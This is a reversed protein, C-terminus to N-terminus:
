AHKNELSHFVDEQLAKDLEAHIERELKALTNDLGLLGIVLGFDKYTLIMSHHVNRWERVQELSGSAILTDELWLEASEEVSSITYLFELNKVDLSYPWEPGDKWLPSRDWRCGRYRLIGSDRPKERWFPDYGLWLAYRYVTRAFEYMTARPGIKGKAEDKIQKYLEASRKLYEGGRQKWERFKNWFKSSPLGAQYLFKFLGQEEARCYLEVIDKGLDEEKLRIWCFSPQEEYQMCCSNGVCGFDDPFGCDSGTGVLAYEPLPHCLQSKWEQIFMDQQEKKRLASVLADGEIKIEEKKIEKETPKEPLLTSEEPTMSPRAGRAFREVEEETFLFRGGRSWSVPHLKGKNVRRTVTRCNLGLREAVENTRLFKHNNQGM